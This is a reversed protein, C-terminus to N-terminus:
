SRRTDIATIYFKGLWRYGVVVCEGDMGTVRKGLLRALWVMYQRRYSIATAKM